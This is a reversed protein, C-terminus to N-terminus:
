IRVVEKDSFSQKKELNEITEKYKQISAEKSLHVELYARGNMGLNEFRKKDALVAELVDQIANYDGPEVVYGCHSEEILTRAESGKELVGIIPKGVAMVGYVKSPVSIGKIGKANIVWHADAANLSYVLEEKPQYPIFVVNDMMHEKKQLLLKDKITGDGIFAFVVNKESRFKQLVTFINELDYYLGINGSYVIVYKDELKYKKKFAQVHSDEKSLPIVTREDVWNNIVTHSPHPKNKFRLELTETMDRGVLIVQDSKRCTYKDVALMTKLVLPNGAYKIAITQEPNFDQINYLLKGRKLVKGIVGLIGGLIPPQSIALIYDQRPIKM